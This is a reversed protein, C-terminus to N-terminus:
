QGSAAQQGVAPEAADEPPLPIRASTFGQGRVENIHAVTMFAKPDIQCVLDMADYLKRPPIVCLVALEQRRLHGTEIAVMTVGAELSMLLHHRIEEAHDSVVFLQMQAKGAVMAKDLTITELVLVLLGLLIQESDCFLAQGGMIIADTLYVLLALPLHLWHHLVLAIVDMGGTSSGVRMVLGLALGMLCGAFIAALVPDDTLSEIGPIRQLLGLSLPYLVSSAATTVFFKRGLVLRGFLLLGVNLALVIAAVDLHPFLGKLVIGIGTTGGMIIDHPIIFAAVLFALLGNGVVLCTVTSLMSMRRDKTM